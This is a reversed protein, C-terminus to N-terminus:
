NKSIMRHIARKQYIPQIRYDDTEVVGGCVHIYDITALPLRTCINIADEPELGGELFDSFGIRVGIIFHKSVKEKVELIIRKLFLEKNKGYEDKRKNTLPSLFENILYGNGGHIEVGNFGAIDARYACDVFANILKEIEEITLEHCHDTLGGVIRTPAVPQYNNVWYETQRGAHGIQAIAVAGEKKIEDALINAGPIFRNHYLSPQVPAFRSAEDDVHFTETILMSAGGRAREGYYAVMRDSISGDIQVLLTSMPALVIRNKLTYNNLKIPKFIMDYKAKRMNLQVGENALM